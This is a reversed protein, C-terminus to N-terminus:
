WVSTALMAVVVATMVATALWGVGRLSGRVAFDGMIDARCALLMMIAMVPVAVIGNIVASWYLAKIPEIPAFNIIMGVLTAVVLTAYFAQAEKPRRGLGTPWQRAEGIAYAASGALVPVSLLGTGIIGLTFLSAAAEGAIPRLASAAQASSQIDTEGHTHLTAATTVIIALAILNSIGMGALTDLEIRHLAVKGQGPAHLLDTRRPYAHLDEVEEAAQWFFLYPSITTGFIAVLTTLYEQKWLLGPWVLNLAVAAWDVGVVAASAVYSLLALTLWKLVAVYRSYQLFVQLSICITAFLLVYLWAPAPLLLAFAEAMAGLDAGINIVNAVLLLLVVATLLWPPYHLRLAGAIGRGTTRGIRASIMQIASMLPFSVLMTWGLGYGFQAGAQSYTAIGSPDDDSAGTILGPGLIQWLRPKSPGIVPSPQEPDDVAEAEM